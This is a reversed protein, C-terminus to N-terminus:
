KQSDTSKEPQKDKKRNMIIPLLLLIGSLVGLGGAIRRIIVTDFLEFAKAFAYLALLFLVTAIVMGQKKNAGNWIYAGCALAIVGIFISEATLSDSPSFLLVFGIVIAAVAGIIKVVKGVSTNEKM